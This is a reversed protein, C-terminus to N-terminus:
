HTWPKKRDYKFNDLYSVCKRKSVHPADVRYDVANKQAYDIAAQQTEFTLKVQSLMDSSSTCGMFPDIRRASVQDFELIWFNPKAKGSQTPTKAPSYIRASPMMAKHGM